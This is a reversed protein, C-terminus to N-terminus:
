DGNKKVEFRALSGTVKVPEGFFHNCYLRETERNYDHAFVTTGSAAFTTAWFISKMRGHTSGNPSDVIIIDFTEETLYEPIGDHLVKLPHIKDKALQKSNYGVKVVELGPNLAIWKDKNEIFVTRGGENLDHWYQSDVGLGFVLINCKGRKKIEKEIEAYEAMTCLGGKAVIEKVAKSYAAM